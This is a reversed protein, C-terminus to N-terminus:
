ITSNQSKVKDLTFDIFSRVKSSVYRRQPFAVYFPVEKEIYGPLLEILTGKNILQQVLPYHTKIIGLGEQALKVMAQSDNICIYPTIPITEKNSFNLINSPNRMSHIIHRHKILDRPLQPTGFKKLYDPSACFCGRTTEIQRQIVNGTSPISMGIVIDVAEEDFNPLREALEIDIHINPFSSLFEGLYPMIYVSAFCRGSVVKLHGQPITKMQNVLVTAVDLEELIRKCQDCYSKGIETFEVNRTTRTMLQLGLEKELLILQKSVAASSIGLERAAAALSGKDSVMVLAKMQAIAVM